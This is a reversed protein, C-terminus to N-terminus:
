CRADVREVAAVVGAGLAHEQQDGQALYQHEREEREQEVQEEDEQVLM